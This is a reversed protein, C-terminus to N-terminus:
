SHLVTCVQASEKDALAQTLHATLEDVRFQLSQTQAASSTQLAKLSAELKSNRESLGHMDMVANSRQLEMASM